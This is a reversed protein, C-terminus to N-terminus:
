QPQKSKNTGAPRDPVPIQSRRWHAVTHCAHDVGVLFAWEDEEVGEVGAQEFRHTPLPVKVTANTIKVGRGVRM